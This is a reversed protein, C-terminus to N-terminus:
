DATRIRTTEQIWCGVRFTQGAKLNRIFVDEKNPMYQSYQNIWKNAEAAVSPDVSKAKVWMDIAPWVVVQSDWGRGPGCLPGSSAYLRGILIYPEGSKPNLKASQLAYQRAKPFNKLHANYVKSIILTYSAKKIRDEEEDIAAQFLEIAETYKAERLAAYAKKLAGAEVCNKNGAEILQQFKEDAESCGGWKLRSYVTRIVDCDQPATEFDVFYKNLYYDCDFFGKVIEFAELRAPAYGDIIEWRECGTGKCNELGNKIIERIKLEYKKAEEDSVKGEAHLEVLLATFPNIVFDKTDMDDIDISKKFMQFVEERSARDKYKYYLDFAKRGVIFGGEAYCEDIEDYLEFIRDIYENRKGPEKTNRLFHEYFRIGDAYVTNRQGDAAPAVNYVKQWLEFAKDWEKVKYFDRYLVYNTEVEDPNPADKFKPCPSLSEDEEPDPTELTPTEEVETTAIQTKPSCAMFALNLCCLIVISKFKM